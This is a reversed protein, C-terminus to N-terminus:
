LQGHLSTLEDRVFTSSLILSGNTSHDDRAFNILIMVAILLQLYSYFFSWTRLLGRVRGLGIFVVRAPPAVGRGDRRM